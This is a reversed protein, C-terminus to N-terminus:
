ETLSRLVISRAGYWRSASAEGESHQSWVSLDIPETPVRLQTYLPPADDLEKDSHKVEIIMCDAIKGLVVNAEAETHKKCGESKCEHQTLKSRATYLDLLDSLTAEALDSSIALGLPSCIPAHDVAVHGCGM